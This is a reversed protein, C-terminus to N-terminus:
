GYGILRLWDGTCTCGNTKGSARSSRRAKAFLRGVFKDENALLAPSSTVSDVIFACTDVANSLSCIKHLERLM